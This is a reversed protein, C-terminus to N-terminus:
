KTSAHFRAVARVPVSRIQMFRAGGGGDTAAHELVATDRDGEWGAIESMVHTKRETGGVGEAYFMWFHGNNRAELCRECPQSVHYGLVCGCGMCAADRIRCNCGQTQRDEHLLSCSAPPIDTSYLEVKVDALLIARM